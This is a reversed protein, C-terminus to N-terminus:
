IGRRIEAVTMASIFLKAAEQQSVWSVVGGHPKSKRLESIINTDLLYM